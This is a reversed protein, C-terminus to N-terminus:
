EFCCENLAREDSLRQRKKLVSKNLNCENLAREDFLRQRKKLVSRNLFIIIKLHLMVALEDSLRQREKFVSKNLCCDNM